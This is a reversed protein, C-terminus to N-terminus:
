QAASGSAVTMRAFKARRHTTKIKFPPRVPTTSVAETRHPALCYLRAAPRSTDILVSGPGWIQVSYPGRM